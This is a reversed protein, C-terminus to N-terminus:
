ASADNWDIGIDRLWQREHDKMKTSAAPAVEVGGVRVGGKGGVHTVTEDGRDLVLKEYEPLWSLLMRRSCRTCSWEEAGSDASRILVMEHATQLVCTREKCSQRSPAYERRRHDSEPSVVIVPYAAM